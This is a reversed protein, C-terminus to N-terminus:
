RELGMRRLHAIVLPDHIEPSWDAMLAIMYEHADFAKDLSEALKERDGLFLYTSAVESWCPPMADQFADQFVEDLVALAQERRGALALM